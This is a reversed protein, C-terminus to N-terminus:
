NGWGIIQRIEAADVDKVSIGKKVALAAAVGSAQGTAM